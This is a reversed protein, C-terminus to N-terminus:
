WQIRSEFLARSDRRDGEGGRGERRQDEETMMLSNGITIKVMEAEDPGVGGSEEVERPNLIEEIL